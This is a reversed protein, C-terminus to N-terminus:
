VEITERDSDRKGRTEKDRFRVREKGTENGMDAEKKRERKSWKEKMLM